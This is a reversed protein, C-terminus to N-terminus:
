ILFQRNRGQFHESVFEQNDMLPRHQHFKFINRLVDLYSLEVGFYSARARSFKKKFAARWTVDVVKGNISIWAHHTLENVLHIVAFGEHYKLAKGMDKAVLRQANAFCHQAKFQRLGGYGNVLAIITRAEALTLRECNGELGFDLHLQFLNSNVGRALRDQEREQLLTKALNM